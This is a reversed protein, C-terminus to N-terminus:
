AAHTHGTVARLLDICASYLQESAPAMPVGRGSGLAYEASRGNLVADEITAILQELRQLALHADSVGSEGQHTGEQPLPVHVDEGLEAAAYRRQAPTSMWLPVPLQLARLVADVAELADCM